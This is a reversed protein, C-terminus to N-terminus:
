GHNIHTRTHLLRFGGPTMGQLRKFMRRFYATDAFGCQQAIDDIGSRTEALLACAHRIRRENITDTITKGYETRFVRGLYDPNCRLEAAISSASIADQFKTQIVVEAKGALAAPRSDPARASVGSRALECLMLMLLLSLTASRAGFLEQDDLLRRFLATLHDPRAVSAHQRAHLAGDEAAADVTFHVWYFKLDRSAGRHGRHLREPWLLLAEGPRVEFEVGAETLYLVGEKVFILEYSTLKREPHRWNASAAVFLGGNQAQVGLAPNFHLM